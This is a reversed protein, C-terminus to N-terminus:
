REVEFSFFPVLEEKDEAKLLFRIIQSSSWETRQFVNKRGTTSKGCVHAKVTQLNSGCLM